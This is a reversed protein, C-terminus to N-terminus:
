AKKRKIILRAGGLGGAIVVAAIIGWAWGFGGTEPLAKTPVDGVTITPNGDIPTGMAAPASVTVEGGASVTVKIPKALLEYGEPAKTEVLDYEGPIVKDFKFVSGAPNQDPMVVGTQVNNTGTPGRLEWESGAVRVGMGLKEVQFGTGLISVTQGPDNPDEHTAVPTTEGKVFLKEFAVLDTGSLDATSFTFSVTVTGSSQTPTFTKTSTVNQGNVKVASGDPHYLQGTIDYAIGPRLNEYTVTDVLTTSANALIDKDGNSDVLSTGIKPVYVTENDLRPSGVALETTGDPAILKEIWYYIGSENIKVTPSNYDGQNKAPVPASTYVKTDTSSNGSGHKWLEFILTSGDPTPGSLTATDFVNSGVSVVGKTKTTVEPGIFSTENEMRPMDTYVPSAGAEGTVVVKSVWYYEGSALGSVVPSEITKTVSGPLDVVGVPEDDNFYEPWVPFTEPVWRQDGTDPNTEWSGLATDYIQTDTDVSGSGRKYLDFTVDLHIPLGGELVLKDQISGGAPVYQEADSEGTFYFFTEESLRAPDKFVLEGDNFFEGQWYYTGVEWEKGPELVSNDGVTILPSDVQKCGEPAPVNLDATCPIFYDENEVEDYVLTDSVPGSNGKRFLQFDVSPNFLPGHIYFTDNIQDGDHVFDESVQTYANNVYQIESEVGFKSQWPNTVGPIGDSSDTWVYWGGENLTITENTPQDTDSGQPFKNVTFTAKGNSDTKVTTTVSGVQPAQGTDPDVAPEDSLVPKNIYPGWLYSTITVDTNPPYGSVTVQDSAEVGYISPSKPSAVTDVKFNYMLRASEESYFTKDTKGDYLTHKKGDADTATKAPFSYVWAYLGPETIAPSYGTLFKGPKNVNVTTEYFKNTNATDITTPIQDGTIPGYLTATVTAPHKTLIDGVAWIEDRVKDGSKLLLAGEEGYEAAASSNSEIQTSIIVEQKEPAEVEVTESPIGYHSTTTPLGAGSTKVVWTYFGVKSQGLGADQPLAVNPVVYTGAGNANLTVETSQETGVATAESPVAAVQEPETTGAYYLQAKVTVKTGPTGGSLIISDLASKKDATLSAETTVTPTKLGEWHVTEAPIGFDSTVTQSTVDTSKATVVWTYYGGQAGGQPTNPLNIAGTEVTATGDAGITAKVVPTTGILTAGTPVTESQTPKTDTRYLKATVDYQAGQTGGSLTVSDKLSASTGSWILASSSTTLAPKKVGEYHVTESATGYKSKVATFKSSPSSVTVVWTYYGAEATSTNLTIKDTQFVWNGNDDLTGTKTKSAVPTKGSPVNASETPKTAGAYYLDAKVSVDIGPVGGSLLIEDTFDVTGASLKMDPSNAETNITPGKLGNWHFTESPVGYDFNTNSVSVVEVLSQKVGVGNKPVLWAGDTTVVANGFNNPTTGSSDIPTGTVNTIKVVSTGDYKVIWNGNNTWVASGINNPNTRTPQAGNLVGTTFGGAPVTVGAVKSATFATQGANIRVVWYGDTTLVGAGPYNDVAAGNPYIGTVDLVTGTIGAVKSATSAAPTTTRLVSYYGSSTWVGMGSVWPSEQGTIGKITGDLGSVKNKLVSSGNLNSIVWVETDTWVAAGSGIPSNAEGGIFNGTLGTNIATGDSKVYWVGQDTYVISGETSTYPTDGSAGNINGTIGSVKTAAATSPNVMYYGDTTWVASGGTYGSYSLPYLGIAGLVDGSLGTVKTAAFTNPNVLFYGDTTWVGSGGLTSGPMAGTAGLITGTIGTARQKIGRGPSIMVFYDDNWVGFGANADPSNGIVGKLNTLLETEFSMDYTAVWTYYGPKTADITIADSNVTASGDAGITVTKTQTAGVQTAGSPITASQTPKATGHYYLKFTVTASEGPLENTIVMQDSATVNGNLYKAESTKTYIDGVAGGWEVTESEIGYHSTYVSEYGGGTVTVVWTVWGAKTMSIRPASVSAEITASGSSSLTVTESFTNLPTATSPVTASNTPETTSFYPTAKVTAQSGPIGKSIVITDKFTANQLDLTGKSAQTVVSPAPKTYEFTESPVGYPSKLTKIGDGSITTVWTYYGTEQGGLDFSPTTLKAKGTTADLAFTQSNTAAAIPTKGSPVNAVQSPKSTGHYYLESKATLGTLGPTGSVEITDKVVMKGSEAFPDTTSTALTVDSKGPFYFTESAVGYPSTFTKLNAGSAKTVWTYYGAGTAESGPINKNLTVTANGAADATASGTVAAGVKEATSPITQSQTPATTGHFYLQGSVNVQSSPKAATVLVTEVVDYSGNPKQKGISTGTSASPFYSDHFITEEPIGYSSTFNTNEGANGVVKTVWTYYGNAKGDLDVPGVNVVAKGTSSDLTVNQTFTKVVQAGQPISKSETPASTGAYYLTSNLEVTSGAKGDIITVVDGTSLDENTAQTTVKPAGPIIISGNKTMSEKDPNDTLLPQRDLGGGPKYYAVEDSPLGDLTYTVTVNRGPADALYNFTRSKGNLNFTKTTGGGDVFTANQLTVTLTIGLGDALDIGAGSKFSVQSTIVNDYVSGNVTKTPSYTLPSMNISYPGRYDRAEKTLATTQAPNKPAKFYAKRMEQDSATKTFNWLSANVSDAKSKNQSYQNIVYAAARYNVADKFQIKTGPISYDSPNLTKSLTYLDPMPGVLTGANANSWAPGPAHSFACFAIRQTDLNIYSTAGGTFSWESLFGWLGNITPPIAREVAADGDQGEVDDAFAAPSFSSVLLTALFSLVGLLALAKQMGQKHLSLSKM